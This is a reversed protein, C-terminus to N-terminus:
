KGALLHQLSPGVFPKGCRLQSHALSDHLIRARRSDQAEKNRPNPLDVIAFEQSGDEPQDNCGPEPYATTSSQSPDAVEDSCVRGIGIRFAVQLTRRLPLQCPRVAGRAFKPDDTLGEVM